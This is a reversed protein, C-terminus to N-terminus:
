AAPTGPTTTVLVGADCSVWAESGAAVIPADPLAEIGVEVVWEVPVPGAIGDFTYVEVRHLGKENGGVIDLNTVNSATADEQWAGFTVTAVRKDGAAVIELAMAWRYTPADRGQQQYWVPDIRQLHAVVDLMPLAAPSATTLDVQDGNADAGILRWTLEVTSAPSWEGALVCPRARGGIQARAMWPMAGGKDNWELPWMTQKGTQTARIEGGVAPLFEIMEGDQEFTTM